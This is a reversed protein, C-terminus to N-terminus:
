QIDLHEPFSAPAGGVWNLGQYEGQIVEADKIRVEFKTMRRCNLHVRSVIAESPQVVITGHEDRNAMCNWTTLSGDDRVLVYASTVAIEEMAKFIEYPIGDGTWGWEARDLYGTGKNSPGWWDGITEIYDECTVVPVAKGWQPNAPDPERKFNHVHPDVVFAQRLRGSPWQLLQAGAGLANMLGRLYEEEGTLLYLYYVGYLRWGSWGHPSTMMQASRKVDNWAEWWRATGGISRCDTDLLRTLCAHDAVFQRAAATYKAREQLDEQLLAFLAIQTGTCSVAGDEYTGVGETKVDRGQAVMHDVARKVSRAHREYRRRWTPSDVALKKEAAMLEMLAKAPYLVANYNAMGYGGYYGNAHQRSLLYEAFESAMELSAVEGTAEYRKVLLSIMFEGNTIREPNGSFRKGDKERLLRSLVKELLRDGKADIAPDPFHKAALYFGLLGYHTECSYGDIGSTDARPTLRLAELRAQQLYWSWAPRVFFRGTATKGAQDQVRVHYDGYESTEAFVTHYLRNGRDTVKCKLISGAPTIVAASVPALSTIWL